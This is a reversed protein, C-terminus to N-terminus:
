IDGKFWKKQVSRAPDYKTVRLRSILRASRKKGVRTFAEPTNKVSKLANSLGGKKILKGISKLGAGKRALLFPVSLLATGVITEIVEGAEEKVGYKKTLKGIGIEGLTTAALAGGDVTLAALKSFMGGKRAFMVAKKAIKRSTSSGKTGLSRIARLEASNRFYKNSTGFMKSAALGSGVATVASAAVFTKGRGKIIEDNKLKQKIPVIRGRIRRFVVQEDIM